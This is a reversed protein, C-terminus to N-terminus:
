AEWALPSVGASQWALAPAAPERSACNSRTRRLRGRRSTRSPSRYRAPRSGRSIWSTTSSRACARTRCGCSACTATSPRTSRVEHSITPLFRSKAGSAKGAAQQAARMSEIASKLELETRPLQPLIWSSQTGTWTLAVMSTLVAVGVLREATTDSQLQWVGGISGAAAAALSGVFFRRSWVPMAEIRPDVRRYWFWLGLRGLGTAIIAAAWGLLPRTPFHSQLFAVFLLATVFTFAVSLLLRQYTIRLAAHDIQM